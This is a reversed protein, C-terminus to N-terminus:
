AHPTDETHLPQPTWPRMELRPQAQWADLVAQAAAEWRAQSRPHLTAWDAGQFDPLDDAWFAVYAIQGPTM